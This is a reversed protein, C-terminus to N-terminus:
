TQAEATQRAPVPQSSRRQKARGRNHVTFLLRQLQQPTASGLECKNQNRCIGEVYDITFGYQGCARAILHRYQRGQNTTPDGQLDDRLAKGPEGLLNQFHATLAGYDAQTCLRFGHKGCARETQEHRWTEFCAANGNADLRDSLAEASPADHLKASPSVGRGRAQAGARNFARRALAVLAKKQPNTLASM